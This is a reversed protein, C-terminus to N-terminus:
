WQLGVATTLYRMFPGAAGCTQAFQDVFGPACADAESFVTVAVFDKRKLDEIFPHNPDYGSPARKSSDGELRWITKFQRTSIARRWPEPRTAIAERVQTLSDTGPRWLGCAAFVNSPELHLYFGPAHVDRGMEHRFQVAAHTKYPSKDRSFRVDRHIRFLSGGVPRPDAVVHASIQELRPGVDAIFQLMPQRVHTEYRDKNAVFWERTNNQRLERLFEFLWPGFHSAQDVV